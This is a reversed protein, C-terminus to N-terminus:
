PRGPGNEALGSMPIRVVSAVPDTTWIDLVATKDGDSQPTFEVLSHCVGDPELVLTTGQEYGGEFTVVYHSFARADRGSIDDPIPIEKRV